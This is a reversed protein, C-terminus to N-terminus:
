PESVSHQAVDRSNGLYFTKSWLAKLVAHPSGEHLLVRKRGPRWCQMM